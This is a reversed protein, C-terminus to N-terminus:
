TQRPVIFVSFDSIDLKFDNLMTVALLLKKWNFDIVKMTLSIDHDSPPIIKVGSLSSLFLCLMSLDIQKFSGTFTAPTTKSDPLTAAITQLDQLFTQLKNKDALYLCNEDFLWGIDTDECFSNLVEEITAGHAKKIPLHITKSIILSFSHEAAMSMAFDELDIFETQKLPIKLKSIENHTQTTLLLAAKNISFEAFAAAPSIALVASYLALLFLIHFNATKRHKM